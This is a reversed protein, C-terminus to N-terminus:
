FGLNFVRSVIKRIGSKKREDEKKRIQDLLYSKMPIFSLIQDGRLFLVTDKPFPGLYKGQSPFTGSDKKLSYSM